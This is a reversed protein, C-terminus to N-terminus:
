IAGVITFRCNDISRCGSIVKRLVRSCQRVQRYGQKIRVRMQIEREDRIIAGLQQSLRTRLANLAPQNRGGSFLVPLIDQLDAIVFFAAKSRQTHMGVKDFLMLDFMNGFQALHQNLASVVYNGDALAPQIRGHTVKWLLLLNQASLKFQRAFHIKRDYQMGALSM